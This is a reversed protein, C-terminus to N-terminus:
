RQRQAQRDRDQDENLSTETHRQRQGKRVRNIDRYRCKNALVNMESQANSRKERGRSAHGKKDGTERPAQRRKGGNDRFLYKDGGVKLARTKKRFSYTDGTEININAEDTM